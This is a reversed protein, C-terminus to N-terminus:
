QQTALLAAVVMAVLHVATMVTVMAGATAATMVMAM